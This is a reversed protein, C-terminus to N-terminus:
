AATQAATEMAYTALLARLADLLASDAERGANEYYAFFDIAYGNVVTEAMLCPGEEDELHFVYFPVGAEGAAITELYTADEDAFADLVDALYAQRQAEDATQLSLGAYSGVKELSVDITIHDSYLIFLWRYGNASDERYITDDLTYVAEDYAISFLGVATYTQALAGACLACLLMVAVFAAALRKKM